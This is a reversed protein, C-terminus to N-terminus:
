NTLSVDPLRYDSSIQASFRNRLSQQCFFCVIVARRHNPELQRLRNADSRKAYGALSRQFNNNLWFLDLELVGTTDIKELKGTLRVIAKPSPRGPPSKQWHIDSPRGNKTAALKDLRLILEQSFLSGIRDYIYQRAKQRQSGILRRM